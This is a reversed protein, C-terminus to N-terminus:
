AQDGAIAAKGDDKRVIGTLQAVLETGDGMLAFGIRVQRIMHVAYMPNFDALQVFQDTRELTILHM